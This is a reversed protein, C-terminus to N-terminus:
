WSSAADKEEICEPYDSTAYDVSFGTADVKLVHTHDTNRRVLEVPRGWVRFVYGLTQEGYKIDINTLDDSAHELRLTGDSDVRRVWICPVGYNNRVKALSRIIDKVDKTRVQLTKNLKLQDDIPLSGIHQDGNDRFRKEIEEQTKYDDKYNDPSGYAFLHLKDSLEETLYNRFFSVDDESEMVERIKEAGTMTVPIKTGWEDEM